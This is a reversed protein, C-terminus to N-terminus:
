AHTRLENLMASIAATLGEDSPARPTDRNAHATAEDVLAGWDLTLLRHERVVPRGGVFVHRVAKRDARMVLQRALDNAPVFAADRADLVVLDALYGPALRGLDESRDLAAAGGVTAMNLATAPTIWRDWHTEFPRHLITTLKMSEFMSLGDNCTAADTGLGLRVGMAFMDPIPARGSGLACNSTPNHIVLAKRAALLDIDETAPWVMHALVIRDTLAGITDLHQLMSSGWRRQAQVAQAQTELAHTHVLTGLSAALQIAKGILADSCRQPGSPGVQVTLRGARGHWAASFDRVVELQESADIEPETSPQSNALPLTDKVALDRVVPVIAARMGSDLYAEAVADLLPRRLGAAPRVMDVVGTVGALLLQAAGLRAALRLDDPDSSRGPVSSLSWLELPVAPLQGTLLNDPSHYHANILGPIVLDGGLNWVQDAARAEVTPGLAVIRDAELAIDAARFQAGDYVQGGRLVTRM